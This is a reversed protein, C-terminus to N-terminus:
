NFCMCVNPIGAILCFMYVASEHFSHDFLILIYSPLMLMDWILTDIIQVSYAETYKSIDVGGLLM